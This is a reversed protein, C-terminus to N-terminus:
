LFLDIGRPFPKEATLVFNARALQHMFNALQERSLRCDALLLRDSNVSV